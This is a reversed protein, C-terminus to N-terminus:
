KITSALKLSKRKGSVDGGMFLVARNEDVPEDSQIEAEKTKESVYYSQYGLAPIEQALFILDHVASSQRGPIKAVSAPIPVLQTVLEKGLNCSFM